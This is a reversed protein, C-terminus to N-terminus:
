RRSSVDPHPAGTAGLTPMRQRHFRAGFSALFADSFAPGVFTMGMPVGNALFGNPVAIAALDSMNVFNTYRGNTINKRIPDAQVEAIRYVTGVTPVALLDASEFTRRIDRANRHLRYVAKFADAATYAMASLIVERVVPDVSDPHTLIFDGVAAYREAIWADEFMLSGTEVFVGFDIETLENGQEALTRLGAAYLNAAEDNGFFELDGRKPIAIRLPRDGSPGPTEPPAPRGYPDAPDVAQCTELVALGDPATLAYVSVTDFSLNANVMDTRSFLGLTPKLGIVNNYSAPVRGSGGTDSGFAFACLGASVSVAAGSSSGGPIYAADFPNRAVGYPSRVGVVGTAFQDLNTKGLLIAGADLARQVTLHTRGATYAYDPCACTTPLGAIDICDKVTFPLGYLPLAAKADRPLAELAHARALVADAPLKYTWVGDDGRGAIRALLHEVVAAPTATGSAYASRLTEFDLSPFAM